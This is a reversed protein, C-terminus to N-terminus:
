PALPGVNTESLLGYQAPAPSFEDAGVDPAARPKGDIDDTLFPFPMTAADIAPSGAGIKYIEGIKVLRPDAMIVGRGIGTSGGSLINGLYTTNKTGGAETLLTGSGQLINYAVTCDVPELPHSGGLEIGHANVITNFAVTVRFVQKHDTLQGSTDNHEGGLLLIGFSTGQVYNNFIEHDTGSARIGGSDGVGDGL